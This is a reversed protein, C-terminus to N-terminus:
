FMRMEEIDLRFYEKNLECKFFKANPYRHRVIEVIEAIHEMSTKCGFYIGTLAEPDFNVAVDSNHIRSIRYEDEYHWIDSKLYILKALLDEVLSERISFFPIEDSYSVKQFHGAVSEILKRTDFEVCFGKHSNSYHSWMLYNDPHPTLSLIGFRKNLEEPKYGWAEEFWSEPNQQILMLQKACKEELELPKNALHPHSNVVTRELTEKIVLPDSNEPHQKFPLGCDYPDNFRMPSSFFLESDTLVKKHFDDTWVRYKYFRPPHANFFAQKEIETSTDHILNM